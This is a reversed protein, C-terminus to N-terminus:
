DTQVIPLLLRAPHNPGFHITNRAVRVEDNARQGAGTNPNPDFRPNNSSGIHLAIRHGRNFVIATSWLDIRVRVVEGPTLMREQDFGARFRTRIISDTLIAEYGDPYVDVLKAVFDTDPADSAVYLDVSVQGVVEVPEELPRTHFRLYDEREGIARQDVPGKGGLILNAGGKTPIPKRPDYDYSLEGSVSPPEEALLRDTQLFYSTPRSAPPWSPAERWENGPANDDQTDGMLYYSVPPERDIGNDEDMLWRRFWKVQHDLGFQGRDANPFKLRGNLPGHAFPGMILKQNGAARGAGHQQLGVFNDITGQAFIDFWGGVNCIPISIQSHFDGIERWDWYDSAPPNQMTTDIAHRANMATLWGDNLEKRYVGGMYVTHRRPSAPAVLVYGCVLHPPAQTAALNTTIGLASGGLMGVKGNCWEQAAIWEVTDYGDHHDTRFPDYDGKSQFRGRCDQGVVAFGERVFRQAAGQTGNKGYPTRSLVCPWPGEGAPRYVDTALEVGDRMPVMLTEPPIAPEAAFGFNAVLCISLSVWSATHYLM